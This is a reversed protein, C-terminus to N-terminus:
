NTKESYCNGKQTKEIECKKTHTHVRKCYKVFQFCLTSTRPKKTIENILINFPILHNFTFSINKTM